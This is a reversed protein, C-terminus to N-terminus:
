HHSEGLSLSRFALSPYILVELRAVLEMWQFCIERRRLPPTLRGLCFCENGSILDTVLPFLLCSLCSSRLSYPGLWEVLGTWHGAVPQSALVM